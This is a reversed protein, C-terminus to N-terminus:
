GAGAPEEQEPANPDLAEASPLEGVFMRLEDHLRKAGASEGLAELTSASEALAIAALEPTVDAFRAPLHLLEVVALRREAAGAERLMSRGLGARCWAEVYRAGAPADLGAPDAEGAGGLGEIRKRLRSRAGAREEASGIRARVIDIALALADDSSTNEPLAPKIAKEPSGAEVASLEWAAAAKYVMALDRTFADAGLARTWEVSEAVARVAPGQATTSFVPALRPALGRTMDVTAPLRVGTGQWLEREKRATGMVLSSLDFFAWLAGAVRGESLRTRVACDALVVGSPGGLGRAKEM